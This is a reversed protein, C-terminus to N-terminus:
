ILSVPVKLFRLTPQLGGDAVIRASFEYRSGNKQVADLTDVIPKYVKDSSNRPNFGNAIEFEDDFGDGDDDLDFHDEVGDGDLDEVVNLLTITFTKSFALGAVDLAKVSLSYSKADVEFDLSRALTLKGEKSLNFEPLAKSLTFSM